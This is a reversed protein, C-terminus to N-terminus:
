VYTNALLKVVFMKVLKALLIGLLWIVGDSNKCIHNGQQM